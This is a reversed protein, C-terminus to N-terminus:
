NFNITYTKTVGRYDFRVIAERNGSAQTIAIGVGPDSASATVVPARKVDPAISVQVNYRDYGTFGNASTSRTPTAPLDLEVDNVWIKVSPPVPREIPRNKASFGLGILDCLPGRGGEAVLYLAHKGELRDVFPAVDLAIHATTADDPAYRDAAPRAPVNVEGIKTGQWTANDYPGDLWVSIKFAERTRPTLWLNLKTDNGPRTGEFAKVGDKDEWLGSFGFYKYGVIHGNAVGAVPMSNDWIDWSDTQTDPASLFCAYGASYYRYPDLGYIDFGESTVEAGTYETGDATRASWTKGPAIPDYARITVRGGEAVPTEDCEITIPAVMAQRAHGFGRPARHYFVWWQDGVRAISGHTNNAAYSPRLATGDENLVPGRADVLVGGMKWPGLPTDGFAYRLTANSSSMGYDPGSHGSYILLYKNGVRRISSAEFFNYSLVDEGAFLHPYETGEPDCLVGWRDSSPMFYPIIGTGPKASYMTQPDLEAAQSHKFGWFGWARFGAEFGPEAPDGAQEVYVGPDFGFISGPVVGGDPTLNVPEYPGDPRSARAVMPERRWGRSNPYLWYEKTGDPRVVEVLDPAYMIDWHGDRLYTFIPGDDRWDSLDEVPASWMRTDAGCYFDYLTDHSGVVYLRYKGPNDPDEFVRPEGDPLHEWLPLYPNQAQSQAIAGIAASLLLLLQRKM